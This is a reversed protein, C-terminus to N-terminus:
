KGETMVRAHNRIKSLTEVNGAAKEVAAMMKTRDAENMLAGLDVLDKQINEASDPEGVKAAEFFSEWSLDLTFPLGLRNKADFAPRRETYVVRKGDGYAKSKKQNKESQTVVEFNTFLVNDAFERWLAAAGEHMKMIYRDYSANQQPDNFTKVKAHAILIVNMKRKERLDHLLAQLQRWYKNAEMYGKGYGGQAKDINSSGDLSCVHDWVLSEMWDLSDINLTQYDHKDVILESIMEKVQDFSTPKPLRSVNLRATGDEPGLFIPKPAESGFTSKGVGDTGYIIALIPQMIKGSTVQTLFKSM